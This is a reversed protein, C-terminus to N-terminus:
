QESRHLRSARLLRRCLRTIFVVPLEYDCEYNALTILRM